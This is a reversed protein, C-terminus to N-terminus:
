FDFGVGLYARRSENYYFRFNERIYRSNGRDTYIDNRQIWDETSSGGRVFFWQSNLLNTVRLFVQPRIRGMPIWKKITLDTQNDMPFRKNNVLTLDEEFSTAYTFPRGSQLMVNMSIDWDGIIKGWDQPSRFSVIATIRHTRDTGRLSTKADKRRNWNRADTPDDSWQEQSGEQGTFVRSLTYSLRYYWKGIATRDLTLEM